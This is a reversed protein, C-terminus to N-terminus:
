FVVETEEIIKATEEIGHSKSHKIIQEMILPSRINELPNDCYVIKQRLFGEYNNIKIKYYNTTEKVIYDPNLLGINIMPSLTAHFMFNNDQHIADQYKGFNSFKNKLFYKFWKKSEIHNTPFLLDESNGYNNPFLKNIYDIAELEYKNKKKMPIDPIKINKSLKNRNENDYSKTDELINIENKIFNYFNKHFFKNKNNNKNNYKELTEISVIFNPNNLITKNKIIKNLRKQHLFDNLEFYYINKVNEIVKYKLDKLNKLEIYKVSYNNKKLYDEYYKMSSRHLVLKLKNFKMTKNRFGFFIPDELIYIKKVNKPLYKKEQLNNPFILLNM